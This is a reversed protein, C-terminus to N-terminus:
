PEIPKPPYYVHNLRIFSDIVTTPVARVNQMDHRVRSRTPWIAGGVVRNGLDVRQQNSLGSGDAAIYGAAQEIDAYLRKAESESDIDFYLYNDNLLRGPKDARVYASMKVTVQTKGNLAQDSLVGFRMDGNILTFVEHSGGGHAHSLNTVNNLYGGSILNIGQKQPLLIGTKFGEIRPNIISTQRIKQHNGIAIEVPNNIDNILTVGDIAISEPYWWDFWAGSGGASNSFGLTDTFVLHNSKRGGWAALVGGSNGYAQNGSFIKLEVLAYDEEGQATNVTEVNDIAIRAFGYAYNSSGNAINNVIDVHVGNFWFAHGLFGWDEIGQRNLWIRLSTKKGGRTAIALNNVFRGREDGAETVFSAGAVQYAINSILAVHSSHNVYGWGPSGIVVCGEVLAPASDWGARHFHMAYRARPNNGIRIIDGSDTFSSDQINIKKNTRGLHYFGTNQISVDNTHMFMVHGRANFENGTNKRGTSVEGTAARGSEDTTIFVNRSLNAVHIKLNINDVTHEATLHDFEMARDLSVTQTAADLSVIMREEAEQGNKSTGAIVITDGVMWNVPFDTLHLQVDGASVGDFAVYATKKVGNAIFRGHVILGQGLKAPDYDPSLTDSTEFGQNWDKIVISATRNAKVSRTKTGMQILSGKTSVLTDVILRTNRRRSFTLTGDVRLTMLHISSQHTLVVTHNKHILVRAGDSPILSNKWTARRNWRGNAVTEHTVDEIAVLNFVRGDIHLSNQRAPSPNSLEAKVVNPYLSTLSIVAMLVFTQFQLAYFRPVFCIPSCPMVFLVARNISSFYTSAM